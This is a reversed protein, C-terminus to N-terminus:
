HTLGGTLDQFGGFFFKATAPSPHFFTELRNSQFVSFPRYSLYQIEHAPLQRSWMYFFDFSASDPPIGIKTYSGLYMKSDSGTWAQSTGQSVVLKGNFYMEQGRPGVTLGFVDNGFSLSGISIRGSGPTQDNFDWYCVGDTYPLYSGFFSSNSSVGFTSGGTAGANRRRGLLITLGYVSTLNMTSTSGVSMGVSGSTSSVSMASGNIGQTWTPAVGTGTELTGAVPSTVEQPLAYNRAYVGAGENFPYALIDPALAGTVLPTGPPPKMTWIRRNYLM